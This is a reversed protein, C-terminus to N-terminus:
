RAGSGARRPVRPRLDEAATVSAVRWGQATRVLHLLAPPGARPPVRSRVRGAEDVVDYGSTDASVLVDATTHSASRVSVERLTLRLRRYSLGATVLSRRAAADVAAAPSGPVTTAPVGLRPAALEAARRALLDRV